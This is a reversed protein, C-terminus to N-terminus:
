EFSARSAALQDDDIKECLVGPEGLKHGADLSEAPLLPGAARDGLNLMGRLKAAIGPM